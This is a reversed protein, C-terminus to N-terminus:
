KSSLCGSCNWIKVEKPGGLIITEELMTEETLGVCVTHGMAYEQIPENSQIGGMRVEAAHPMSCSGDLERFNDLLNKWM